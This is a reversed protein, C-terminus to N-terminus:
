PHAARSIPAAMGKACDYVWSPNKDSRGQRPDGCFPEGIM